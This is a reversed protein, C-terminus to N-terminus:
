GKQKTIIYNYVDTSKCAPICGICSLVLPVSLAEVPPKIHM